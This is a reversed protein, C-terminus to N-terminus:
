RNRCKWCPRLGSTGKYSSVARHADLDAQTVVSIIKIIEGEGIGSLMIAPGCWTRLLKRIANPIGGKLKISCRLIGIPIWVEEQSLMEVGFERFAIYVTWSKRQNDPAFADGPTLEDFYVVAILAPGHERLTAAM